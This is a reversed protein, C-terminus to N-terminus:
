CDDAADSTYLLCSWSGNALCSAAGSGVANYGTDCVYKMAAPFLTGNDIKATSHELMPPLGCSVPYCEPQERDWTGNAQCLRKFTGIIEYGPDCVFLVGDGYRRGEGVATGHPFPPLPPCQVRECLPAEGSWLLNPLCVLVTSGVPQFGMNCQYMVSRGMRYDDGVITGHEVSPPAPCELSVCTPEAGSWEGSALCKRLTEGRLVFGPFCSYRVLGGFTNSLTTVEGNEFATDIEPCTVPECRPKEGKWLGDAQCTRSAVGVLFHGEACEYRVEAGFTFDKGVFLGNLIDGPQLCSVIECVPAAGEWEGRETCERQSAGVLNYGTNCVYQVNSGYIGFNATFVVVGNLLRVASIDPCTIQVCSPAAPEWLGQESCFSSDAGELRFGKNCSHILTTDNVQRSLGNDLLLPPPCVIKVCVPDEKSWQGNAMCTREAPGELRYRPRCTFTVVTGFERKFTSAFGNVVSALPCQVAICVPIASSWQGDAQCVRQADGEMRYGEDCVYTITSNFSFNTGLMRGNSIIEGPKNCEVPRCRPAVGSLMSDVRCTRVADGVLIYGLHCTYTVKSGALLPDHSLTVDAHLPPDPAPCSAPVCTPQSGSLTLNAQCRRVEEGVLTYGVGCSYLM